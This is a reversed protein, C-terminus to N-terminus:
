GVSDANWWDGREVPEDDAENARTMWKVGIPPRSTRLEDRDGLVFVPATGSLHAALAIWAHRSRVLRLISARKSPGNLDFLPFAFNRATPTPRTNAIKDCRRGFAGIREAYHWIPTSTTHSGPNTQPKRSHIISLMKPKSHNKSYFQGHPPPGNRQRLISLPLDKKKKM